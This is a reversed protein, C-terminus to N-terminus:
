ARRALWILVRDPGNEIWRWEGPLDCHYLLSDSPLREISRAGYFIQLLLRIPWRWWVRETTEGGMVVVFSGGVRLARAVDELTERALIFRAPFTSVCAGLSGTQIPLSVADARVLRGRAGERRSARGLMSPEREIGFVGFGRKAMEEVLVGTGCGLDLVPGKDVYALAALRWRNWADGFIFQVFRDYIPGGFRYLANFAHSQVRRRFNRHYPSQNGSNSQKSM